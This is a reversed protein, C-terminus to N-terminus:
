QVMALKKRTLTKRLFWDRYYVIYLELGNMVVARATTTYSGLMAM